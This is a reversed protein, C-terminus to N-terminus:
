TRHVGMAVKAVYGTGSTQVAKQVTLVSKSGGNKYISDDANRTDRNPRTKYPSRKYVADTLADSFFLQGTHVVNGGLHVKVHIHVARGRYWGPYITQFTAIGQANTPQIGRLFTRKDTPGGGGPGGTSAAGFGSYIGGGDCHWIDVTAGVLARCTSVDLVGLHLELPAGPKGETINRRVKEGPIYYPGETLEPTLVCSVLGRAVAAPGGTSGATASETLGAGAGLGAVLLGGFRALSARRTVRTEAPDPESTM